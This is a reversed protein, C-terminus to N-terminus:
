TSLDTEEWPVGPSVCWTLAHRREHVVGGDRVPHFGPPVTKGGLQASRVANHACYFRDELEIVQEAPRPSAKRCLDDVTADLGPLFDLIMARIVDGSIMGGDVDPPPDFGLAWALPWMNELKWGVGDVHRAHATARDLTLVANEEATLWEGLRNRDRYREVRESATSPSSVWTFLCDLAMLRSAVERAPRLAADRVWPLSPSVRFGKGALYELSRRRLTTM